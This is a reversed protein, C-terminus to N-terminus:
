RTIVYGINQLEMYWFFTPFEMRRSSGGLRRGDRHRRRGHLFIGGPVHGRGEIEPCSQTARTLLTSHTFIFGAGLLGVSIRLVDLM